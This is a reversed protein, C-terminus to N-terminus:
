SHAQDVQQSSTHGLGSCDAETNPKYAVIPLSAMGSPGRTQVVSPSSVAQPALPLSLCAALKEAPTRGKLAISFRDHNYRREWALLATAAAADDTFDHRYWFEENDIRHSREVKGNQEPCRPTIYRTRIGAAQVTLAFALPFESGNDTQLKRIPFPLTRQITDFFDLSSWQNKRPYLRLVRYRTCDDIATYQYWTHRAIKVDKVDVQVCDGPREREFLKLQRPRRKRSRNLPPLGLDRCIRQATAAAVRIQHVRHLWIRTRVAGFRLECRAHAILQVVEPRIRRARRLPYRPVLGKAGGAQWRGRWARVTKRDLGFGTSAPRIGHEAAYALVALRAQVKWRGPTPIKMARLEATTVNM